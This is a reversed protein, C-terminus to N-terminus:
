HGVNGTTWQIVRYTMDRSWVMTNTVFHAAALLHILKYKGM